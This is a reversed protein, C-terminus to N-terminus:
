DQLLPGLYLKRYGSIDIKHLYKPQVWFQGKYVAVEQPCGPQPSDHLSWIRASEKCVERQFDEVSEHIYEGPKWELRYGLPASALHRVSSFTENM